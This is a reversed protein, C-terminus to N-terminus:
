YKILTTGPYFHSLIQEATWGQGAYSNAARQSMGVGHGWGKCTITFTDNEADYDITYASSRIEYELLTARVFQGKYKVGGIEVYVCYLDNNDYQIPKIWDEKPLTSVDINCRTQIKSKIEHSTYTKSTQFNSISEDVSCDVSQLYPYATGGWIDQPNATKGASYAYYFTSAVKNNYTILTGKVAQVAEISRSLAVKMPVGSPATSYNLAGNNLLWAYAAIAQAKLAEINYGSGMEAEVIKAVIDSASGNIISGDKKVYLIVDWTYM